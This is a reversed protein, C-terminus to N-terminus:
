KSAGKGLAFARAVTRRISQGGALLALNMHLWYALLEHPAERELRHVPAVYARLPASGALVADAQERWGGDGLGLRPSNM